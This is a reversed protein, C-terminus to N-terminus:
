GQIIEKENNEASEYKQWTRLMRHMDVAGHQYAVRHKRTEAFQQDRHKNSGKLKVLVGVCRPM